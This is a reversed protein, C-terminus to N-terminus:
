KACGPFRTMIAVQELGDNVM